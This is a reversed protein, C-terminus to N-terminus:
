NYTATAGIAGHPICVLKMGEMPQLNKIAIFDYCIQVSQFTGYRALPWSATGNFAMAM